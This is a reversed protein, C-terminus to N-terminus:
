RKGKPKGTVRSLAKMQEAAIKQAMKVRAKDAQIEQARQLTRLDEEARWRREDPSSPAAFGLGTSAKKRAM